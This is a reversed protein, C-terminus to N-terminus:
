AAHGARPFKGLITYQVLVPPETTFIYPAITYILLRSPTEVGLHNVCIEIVVGM